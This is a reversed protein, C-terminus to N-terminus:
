GLYHDILKKISKKLYSYKLLKSYLLSSLVNNYYDNDNDIKNLNIISVVNRPICKM